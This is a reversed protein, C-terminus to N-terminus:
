NNYIKLHPFKQFCKELTKIQAFCDSLSHHQLKAYEPQVGCVNVLTRLDRYNWFKFPFQNGTAKYANELIVCDFNPSNAWVLKIPAVSENIWKNFELLVTKLDERKGEFAEKKAEPSQKNWFDVTSQDYELGYLKCSEIDIKKYFTSINENRTFRVCAITLIISKSSVGLTELDLMYSESM